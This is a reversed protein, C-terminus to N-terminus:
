RIIISELQAGCGSVKGENPTPEVGETESMRQLTVVVKPLYTNPIMHVQYVRQICLVFLRTLRGLLKGTDGCEKHPSETGIGHRSCTDM